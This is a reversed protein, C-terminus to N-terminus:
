SIPRQFLQIARSIIKHAFFIFINIPLNHKDLASLVEKNQRVLNKILLEELQKDTSDQQHHNAIRHQSTLSTARSDNSLQRQFDREGGGPLVGRLKGSARLMALLDEEDRKNNINNALLMANGNMMQEHTPDM